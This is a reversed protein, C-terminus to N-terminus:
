SAAALEGFFGTVRQLRGGDALQGVDVGAVIAEGDEGVLEWAYRVADHHADVASTRTFRAGPYQGHVGAVMESIAAHGQGEFPPDVWQGDETWARAIHTARQARDPENLAAFWSDIAETSTAETSM